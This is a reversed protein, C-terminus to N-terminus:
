TGVIKSLINEHHSKEKETNELNTKINFIREEILEIEQKRFMVIRERYNKETESKTELEIKVKQLALTNCSLSDRALRIKSHLLGIKESYELKLFEKLLLQDDDIEKTKLFNFM